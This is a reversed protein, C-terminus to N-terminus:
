KNFLLSRVQKSREAQTKINGVASSKSGSGSAAKAPAAKKPAVVKKPVPAAPKSKAVVKPKVDIVTDELLDEDMGNDKWYDEEGAISTLEHERITSLRSVTRQQDEASRM